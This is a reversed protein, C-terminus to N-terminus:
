YDDERDVWDLSEKLSEVEVELREVVEQAEELCKKLAELPLVGHGLLLSELTGNENARQLEELNFKM